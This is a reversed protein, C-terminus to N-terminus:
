GLLRLGIPTGIESSHQSMYCCKDAFTLCIAAHTIVEVAMHRSRSHFSEEHTIQGYCAYKSTM